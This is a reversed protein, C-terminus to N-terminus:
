LRNAIKRPSIGGGNSSSRSASDSFACSVEPSAREFNGPLLRLLLFRGPSSSVSNSSRRAFSLFSAVYATTSDLRLGALEAGITSWAPCMSRKPSSRALACASFFWSASASLFFFSRSYSSWYVIRNELAAPLSPILWGQYECPSPTAGSTEAFFTQPCFSGSRM